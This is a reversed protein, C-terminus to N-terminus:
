DHAKSREFYPFLALDGWNPTIDSVGTILEKEQDPTFKYEKQHDRLWDFFTVENFLPHKDKMERAVALISDSVTRAKAFDEAFKRSFKERQNIDFQTEQGYTSTIPRGKPYSSILKKVGESRPYAILAAGGPSADFGFSGPDQLFREGNQPNVGFTPSKNKSRLMDYFQKQSGLKEYAPQAAMLAKLTEEKKSPAIKDFIDRNAKTRLENKKEVHDKGIKVWKEAATRTTLSPNTALDNYMSKKLNLQDTGTLDSYINKGEKQLATALQDDFEKAAKNEQEKLYEQQKRYAEPAELYRREKEKVRENVQEYSMQPNREWERSIEDNVQEPTWPISPIFKENGTNETALGPKSKAEEERNAFNSKENNNETRPLNAFNTNNFAQRDPSSQLSSAGNESSNRKFSNRLGRQKYLEGGTQIMQPTVGYVSSLETFAQYPDLDKKEGLAKLGASRRQHEVEKPIQEALGKGLNEGIRGFINAKKVYNAM